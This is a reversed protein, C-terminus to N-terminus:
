DGDLKEILGQSTTDFKRAFCYERAIELIEEFNAERLIQPHRRNSGLLSYTLRHSLADSYTGMMFVTQFFSEDPIIINRYYDLIEPHEDSYDLVEYAADRTLAWWQSGFALEGEFPKQKQFCRFTHSYGGTLLKYARKFVKIPVSDKNIWKPYPVEYLKRYWNYRPDDLSMVDIYNTGRNEELRREIEKVPVIPYDQGSILWIYDYEKSSTKVERILELTAKVINIGGWEIRFSKGEPLIYVRENEKIQERVEPHKLDVHIYVDACRFEELKKLLRRIQEPETHCLMIFAIRIM